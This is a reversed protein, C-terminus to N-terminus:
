SGLFSFLWQEIQLVGRSRSETACINKKKKYLMRKTKTTTYAVFTPRTDYWSVCSHPIQEGEPFQALSFNLGLSEFNQKCYASGIPDQTHLTCTHTHQRLKISSQRQWSHLSYSAVSGVTDARESTSPPSPHRHHHNQLRPSILVEMM